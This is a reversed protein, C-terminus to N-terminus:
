AAKNEETAGGNENHNKKHRNRKRKPKSNQNAAETNSEVSHDTHDNQKPTFDETLAEIEGLMVRFEQKRKKLLEKEDRIKAELGKIEQKYDEINQNHTSVFGAIEAKINELSTLPSSGDSKPKPAEKKVDAKLESKVKKPKPTEVVPAVIAATKDEVKVEPVPEPITEIKDLEPKTETQSAEGFNFNIPAAESDAPAAETAVAAPTAEAFPNEAVAPTAEPAAETVPTASVEAPAEAVVPEAFPNSAAEAVPAAAVVDNQTDPELTIPAPTTDAFPNEAIVAGGEPAAVVPTPVETAFPNASEVAPTPVVPTTESTNNETQNTETAFPNLPAADNAVPVAAVPTPEVPTAAVPMPAATLAPAQAFPNSEDATPAVPAAPQEAFPNLVPNEEAVPVPAVPELSQPVVPEVQMVPEAATPLPADTVNITIDDGFEPANAAAPEVMVPETPPATTGANPDNTVPTNPDTTSTTGAGSNDGDNKGGLGFNFNIGM